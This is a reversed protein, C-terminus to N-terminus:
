SRHGKGFRHVGFVERGTHWICMEKPKTEDGRAANNHFNRKYGPPLIDVKKSKLIIDGVYVEMNRSIQDGFVNNVM